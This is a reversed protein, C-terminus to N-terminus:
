GASAGAMAVALRGTLILLLIVWGATALTAIVLAAVALVRSGRREGVSRVSSVFAALTALLGGVLGFQGPAFSISGLQGTFLLLLLSVALLGAALAFAARRLGGKALPM